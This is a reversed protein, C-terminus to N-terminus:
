VLQQLSGTTTASGRNEPPSWARRGFHRRTSRFCCTSSITKGANPSHRVQSSSTLVRLSPGVFGRPRLSQFLGRIRDFLADAAEASLQVGAHGGYVIIM